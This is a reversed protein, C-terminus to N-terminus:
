LYLSDSVSASSAAFLLRGSRMSRWVNMARMNWQTMAADINVSSKVANRGITPTLNAHTCHCQIAPRTSVPEIM